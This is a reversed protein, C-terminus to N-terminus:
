FHNLDIDEFDLADLTDDVVVNKEADLVWQCTETGGEPTVCKCSATRLKGKKGTCAKGATGKTCTTGVLGECKEAKGVVAGAAAGQMGFGTVLMGATVAVCAYKVIDYRM